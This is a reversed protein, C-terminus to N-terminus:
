RSRVKSIESNRKNLTRLLNQIEEMEEWCSPVINVLDRYILNSKRLDYEGAFYEDIRVKIDTLDNKKAEFSDYDSYVDLEENKLHCDHNKLSYYRYNQGDTVSVSSGSYFCSTTPFLMNYKAIEENVFLFRVLMLLSSFEEIVSNPISYDRNALNNTVNPYKLKLFQMRKCNENFELINGSIDYVINYNKIYKQM